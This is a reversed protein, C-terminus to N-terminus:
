HWICFFWKEILNIMSAITLPGETYWLNFMYGHENKNNDITIFMIDFIQRLHKM